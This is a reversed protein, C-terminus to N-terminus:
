DDKGDKRGKNKQKTSQTKDGDMKKQSNDILRRYGLPTFVRYLENKLREVTEEYSAITVKAMESERKRTYKRSRLPKFVQWPINRNREETEEYTREIIRAM